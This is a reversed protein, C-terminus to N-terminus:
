ELIVKFLYSAFLNDLSMAYRRNVSQLRDPRSFITFFSHLHGSVRNFRALWTRGSHLFSFRDISGTGFFWYSQLWTCLEWWWRKLTHNSIGSRRLRAMLNAMFGSISPSAHRCLCHLRRSHIIQSISHHAHSVLLSSPTRENARESTGMIRLREM